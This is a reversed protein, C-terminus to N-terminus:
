LYSLWWDKRKAKLSAFWRCLPYLIVLLLMWAVYTVWLPFGYNVPFLDRPGGMSLPPYLFFSMRGYVVYSLLMAGIHILFLHALFYFLPVRGFVLVANTMAVRTKELLGLALLIPGGTMLLFDLSPPYKNCKLFSLITFATSKQASWPMPDGYLNLSRVLIFAAVLSVGLAVLFRRRSRADQSFVPGLCYGAAMVGVWPILPYAVLVPKGGALFIGPQHLLNWWWGGATVHDALNHLTILAISLTALVPRTLHILGALVVMSLGLAWLITLFLPGYLMNFQFVFRLVTVELLM